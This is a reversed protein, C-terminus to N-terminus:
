TDVDMTEPTHLQATWAATARTPVTICIKDVALMSAFNVAM